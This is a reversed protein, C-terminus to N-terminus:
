SESFKTESANVLLTNIILRMDVVIVARFINPADPKPLQTQIVPVKPPLIKHRVLIDVAAKRTDAHDLRIVTGRIEIVSQDQHMSFLFEGIKDIFFFFLNVADVSAQLFDPWLDRETIDGRGVSFTTEEGSAAIEYPFM